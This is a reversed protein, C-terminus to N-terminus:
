NNLSAYYDKLYEEDREAIYKDWAAEEAADYLEDAQRDLYDMREQETRM